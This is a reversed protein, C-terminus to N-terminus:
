TLHLLVGSANDYGGRRNAEQILTRLTNEANEGALVHALEEEEFMRYLGDSCFLWRDGSAIEHESLDPRLLAKQGICRTLAGRNHENLHLKAAGDELLAAENELNHDLTLLELAGNRLRYCRSDGVHALHLRGDRLLGFTLTCGIGEFPSLKAGLDNVTKNATRVCAAIDITKGAQASVFAQVAQVAAQAAEAGCPLGGIGDAVGFLGAKEDCLLADENHARHLGIDTLAATSLHM